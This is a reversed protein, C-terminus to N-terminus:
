EDGVLIVVDTVDIAESDSCGVYFELDTDSVFLAERLFVEDDEMSSNVLYINNKHYYILAKPFVVKIATLLEISGPKNCLESCLSSNLIIQVTPTEESIETVRKVLYDGLYLSILRQLLKEDFNINSVININRGKVEVKSGPLVSNIYTTIYKKM